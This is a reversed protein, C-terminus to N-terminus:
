SPLHVAGLQHFMSLMDFNNWGEIIKGDKIRVITMGTFYVPQKTAALGLGDGTHTGRVLCRASVLDGEAITQEVVINIDPFASRFAQFFPKFGEPGKLHKDPHDALGHALGESHFM